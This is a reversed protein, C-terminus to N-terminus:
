ATTSRDEQKKPDKRYRFSDEAYVPYLLRRPHNTANCVCMEANAFPMEPEKNQKILSRLEPFLQDHSDNM